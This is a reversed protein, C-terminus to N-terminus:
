DDIHTRGSLEPTGHVASADGDVLAAIAEHLTAVATVLLAATLIEPGIFQKVKGKGKRVTGQHHVKVRM